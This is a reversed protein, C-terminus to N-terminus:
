VAPLRRLWDLVKRPTHPSARFGELILELLKRELRGHPTARGDRQAELLAATRCIRAGAYFVASPRTIFPHEGARVVVTQDINHRLTTLNVLLCEGAKSTAAVIWLHRGEGSFALVFTDGPRIM